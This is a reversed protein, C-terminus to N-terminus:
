TATASNPGKAGTRISVYGPALNVTTAPTSFPSIRPPGHDWLTEHARETLEFGALGSGTCAGGREAPEPAVRLAAPTRPSEGAAIACRSFRGMKEVEKKVM